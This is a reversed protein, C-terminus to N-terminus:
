HTQGAVTEVVFCAREASQALRHIEAADAASSEVLADEAFRPVIQVGIAGADQALGFEREAVHTGTGPALDALGVVEVVGRRGIAVTEDAGLEQGSTREADVFQLTQRALRSVVHLALLTLRTSRDTLTQYALIPRVTQKTCDSIIEVIAM